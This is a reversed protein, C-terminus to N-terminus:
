ALKRGAIEGGKKAKRREASRDYGGNEKGAPVLFPAAAM